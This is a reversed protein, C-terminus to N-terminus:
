NGKNQKRFYLYGGAIIVFVAIVAAISIPDLSLGIVSPGYAMDRPGPLSSATVEVKLVALPAHTSQYGPPVSMNALSTGTRNLDPVPMLTSIRDADDSALAVPIMGCVLVLSIIIWTRCKVRYKVESEM